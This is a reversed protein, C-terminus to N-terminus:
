GGKIIKLIAEDSMEIAKTIIRFQAITFNMEDMRNSVAQQSMGLLKGVSKQTARKSIYDRGYIQWYCPDLKSRPM